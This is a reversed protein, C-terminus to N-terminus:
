RITPMDSFHKAIKPPFALRECGVRSRIAFTMSAFWRCDRKADPAGFSRYQHSALASESV